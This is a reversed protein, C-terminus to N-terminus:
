LYIIIELLLLKGDTTKSQVTYKCRDENMGNSPEGVKANTHIVHTDNPRRGFLTKSIVQKSEFNCYARLVFTM